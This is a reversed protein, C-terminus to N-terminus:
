INKLALGTAVAFYLREGLVSKPIEASKELRAWPDGSTVELDLEQALYEIIGPMAAGGGTLIASHIKEHSKSEFQGVVKKIEGVLIEFVPRLIAAIKGELQDELLGYNKKYEEAQDREFGLEEVIARTFAEGGTAISRTSLLTAAKTIFIDTTYAGISILLTTPSAKWVLCRTMALVETELGIPKLGSLKLVKLHKEVLVKPAAILLVDMKADPTVKVPRALVQWALNVETLPVPIYQEAEWRIASALEKDNLIPMPIVRTFIQSEPLASVCNATTIKSSAIFKSLHAALTEQDSLAESLIGKSPSATMGAATLVLTNGTKKVQVAKIQATGIDLGFFEEVM